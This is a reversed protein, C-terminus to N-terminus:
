ARIIFLRKLLAVLFSSTSVSSSLASQPLQGPTKPKLTMHSIPRLSLEGHDRDHSGGGGGGVGSMHGGGSPPGGGVPLGGMMNVGPGMSPASSNGRDRPDGGGVGGVIMKKFRPPLDKAADTIRFCVYYGKIYVIVHM